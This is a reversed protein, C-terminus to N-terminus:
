TKMPRHQKKWQKFLISPTTPPTTHLVLGHASRQDTSTYYHVKQPPHPLTSGWTSQSPNTQKLSIRLTVLVKIPLLKQPKNRNTEYKLPTLPLSEYSSVPLFPVTQTRTHFTPLQILYGFMVCKNVAFQILGM